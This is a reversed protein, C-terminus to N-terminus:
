EPPFQPPPSSNPPSFGPQLYTYVIYMYADGSHRLILRQIDIEWNKRPPMGGSGGLLLMSLYSYGEVDVGFNQIGGSSVSRYSGRRRVYMDHVRAYWACTSVCIVTTTYIVTQSLTCGVYGTTHTEMQSPSSSAAANWWWNCHTHTYASPIPYCWMGSPTVPLPTTAPALGLKPFKNQSSVSLCVTGSAVHAPYVVQTCVWLCVCPFFTPYLHDNNQQHACMWHQQSSVGGTCPTITSM